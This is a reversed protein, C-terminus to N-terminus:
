WIKSKIIKFKIIKFDMAYSQVNELKYIKSSNLEKFREKLYTLYSGRGHLNRLDQPWNSDLIDFM